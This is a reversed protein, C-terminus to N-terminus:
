ERESRHKKREAVVVDMIFDRVKSAQTVHNLNFVTEGSATFIELNGLDFLSHFLGNQTDKADEIDMISTEEVRNKFIGIFDIDLFRDTTLLNINYFWRFFINFFGRLMYAFWTVILAYWYKSEFFGDFALSGNLLKGNILMAAWKAFFPLFLVVFYILMDFLLIIKSERIFLLIRENQNIDCLQINAPYSALSAMPNVIKAANGSTASKQVNQSQEKVPKIISFPLSIDLETNL